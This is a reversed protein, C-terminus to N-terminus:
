LVPDAQIVMCPNLSSKKGLKHRISKGTGIMQVLGSETKPAEPTIKWIHKAADCRPSNQKGIDWLILIVRTKNSVHNANFFDSNENYITVTKIDWSYIGAKNRVSHITVRSLESACIVWKCLKSVQVSLESACRLSVDSWIFKEQCTISPEGRLTLGNECQYTVSSDLGRMTSDLTLTADLVTPPSDCEKVSFCFLSVFVSNFM